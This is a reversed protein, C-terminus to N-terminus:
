KIIIESAILRKQRPNNMTYGRVVMRASDGGDLNMAESVGMKEMYEALETLTMGISLEPQRGDVTLFVLRHDKTIGVASRPARGNIIDPQFEGKEASIHIEGNKILCPGAGLASIINYNNWEAPIFKNNYCIKEGAIFKNVTERKNGAAQIIYGAPPITIKKDIGSSKEAIIGRNIVIQATDTTCSVEEGFFKNYMVIENNNVKRNVGTICTNEGSKEGTIAGKWQLRDFLVKGESTIGMVTRHKVPESVVLGEVMMFGLPRGTYSFFGGNIGAFANEEKVTDLLDARGPIINQALHTVVHLNNGQLDLSLLTIVRPGWWTLQRTERFRLGRTVSSDVINKEKWIKALNLIERDPFFKKLIQRYVESEGAIDPPINILDQEKQNYDAFVEGETDSVAKKFQYYSGYIGKYLSIIKYSNKDFFLKNLIYTRDIVAQARIINATINEFLSFQNCLLGTLLSNLDVTNFVKIGTDTLLFEIEGPFLKDNAIIDGKLVINIGQCIIENSGNILSLSNGEGTKEVKHTWPNWGDTNLKDKIEEVKERNKGAPLYVKYLNEEINIIINKYGQKHLKEKINEAKERYKTAFIQIQWYIDINNIVINYRGNDLEFKRSNEGLCIVHVNNVPKFSFDLLDKALLIRLNKDKEIFSQLPYPYAYINGSVTLLLITILFMFLLNRLNLKM